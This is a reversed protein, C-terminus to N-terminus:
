KFTDKVAEIDTNGSGDVIIVDGQAHRVRINGSEDDIKINRGGEVILSGSGDIIDANGSFGRLTLDGSEDEIKINTGGTVDINGSGDELELTDILGKITIDGSGDDIVLQQVNTIHINGSGDDIEAGQIDELTINGSGDDLKIFGKINKIAIDGSSDDLTLALQSPMTITLDIRPSNNRYWQVGSSTDSDAVLMATDGSKELTLQYNEAETTLVSAEVQIEQQNDYGIIQINGSTTNADLKSIDSANLQLSKHLTKTAAASPSIHVVCGSLLSLAALSTLLKKM